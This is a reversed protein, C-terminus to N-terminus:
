VYLGTSGRFMSSAQPSFLSRPQVNQGVATPAANGSGILSSYDPAPLSSSAGGGMGGFSGLLSGVGSLASGIGAGGGGSGGGGSPALNSAGLAELNNKNQDSQQILQNQEMSMKIRDLPTLMMMQPTMYRGIPSITEAMGVMQQMMSGGTKMADLQGIGLDKLTAPQATGGIGLSNTLAARNSVANLVDDYPLQGNMLNGANLGM